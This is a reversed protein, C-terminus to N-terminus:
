REVLASAVAVRAVHSLSVSIRARRPRGARGDRLVVYPRGGGDNLIEIQKMTLKRRPDVQSLAKLVAEKAAFRGALHLLRTRPRGNAYAQEASTFVRALFAEGQRRLVRAFRAIDVVDVGCGVRGRPRLEPAATRPCGPATSPRRTRPM